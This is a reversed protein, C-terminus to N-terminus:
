GNLSQLIGAQLGEDFGPVNRALNIPKELNDVIFEAARDPLWGFDQYFWARRGILRGLKYFFATAMSDVRCQRSSVVWGCYLMWVLRVM